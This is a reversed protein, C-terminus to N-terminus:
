HTTKDLQEKLKTLNNKLSTTSNKLADVSKGENQSMANIVARLETELIDADGKANSSLVKIDRLLSDSLLANKGTVLKSNYNWGSSLEIADLDIIHNNTRM